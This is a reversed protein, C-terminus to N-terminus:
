GEFPMRIRPVLGADDRGDDLESALDNGAAFCYDPAQWETADELVAGPEFSMVHATRGTYFIWKVPRRTQADEYYTIFDAKAWVHCDFGDAPARGLYAAGPALWDPRLIGVGVAASRCARRAPTYFFSTGNNWEADYYPADAALQYRIVHLNRGGPWDYWLDALSLNGKYDMLLKAHFQHPWPTPTPTPTAPPDLPNGAAHPTALCLLLVAALVPLPFPPM